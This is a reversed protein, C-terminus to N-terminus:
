ARAKDSEEKAPLARQKKYLFFYSAVVLVVILSTLLFQSRMGDIFAQAIFIAFLIAITIYTLYPFLWMKVKLLHPNEKERNRRTKLHSFAIFIYMVITIGGSSNALFAFMKDPSVFKLVTCVIAFFVCAWIAGVPVGRKNVRLFMRPADGKQALSYLMRSGTYIGSNLVSLLSTLVVINMIQAAAPMGALNFVSAYPTKLLNSDNWPLITVLIAVSGVFFLLLRWVVSNIAKVVNKEPNESEGAAIAAVESGSILFAVFVVGLLVPLFGNPFFGGIQTLNATGPSEIGPVIGVIMATGLCIFIIITAVKICALWYEFEGFIKVSYINSITMLITLLFSGIWIPISPLWDHIIAGALTAEFAIIIIWNFWYLWGITYGAWPGFAQEAYTSFSGSDTNVAAMEGLMRMVLVVIIGGILYSLVAGPGASQILGGTGVFLGAGIVGGISIMTIHRTKLVKRLENKQTGM